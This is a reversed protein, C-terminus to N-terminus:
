KVFLPKLWYVLEELSGFTYVLAWYTSGIICAIAVVLGVITSTIVGNREQMTLPKITKSEEM